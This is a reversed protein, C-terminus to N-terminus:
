IIYIGFHIFFLCIEIGLFSQAFFRTAIGDKDLIPRNSSVRFMGGKSKLIGQYKEVVDSVAPRSVIPAM